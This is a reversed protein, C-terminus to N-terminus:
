SSRVIDRLSAVKGTSDDIILEKPATFLAATAVVRWKADRELPEVTNLFFYSFGAKELFAKAAAVAGEADLRM